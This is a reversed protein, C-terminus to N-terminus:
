VRDGRIEALTRSTPVSVYQSRVRALAQRREEPDEVRHAAQRAREFEDEYEFSGPRLTSLNAPWPGRRVRVSGWVRVQEAEDDILRLLLCDGNRDTNARVVSETVTLEEGYAKVAGGNSGEHVHLSVTDVFHIKFPEFATETTTDTSM